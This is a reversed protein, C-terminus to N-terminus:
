PKARRVTLRQLLTSKDKTSYLRFENIGAQVWPAESSGEQGEAFLREGECTEVFVAAKRDDSAHWTITTSGTGIGAPVPNPSAQMTAGASELPAADEAPIAQTTATPRQDSGAMGGAFLLFAGFLVLPNM